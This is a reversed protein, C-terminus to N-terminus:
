LAQPEAHVTMMCPRDMMNAQYWVLYHCRMRAAVIQLLQERLVVTSLRQEVVATLSKRLARNMLAVDSKSIAPRGSLMRENWWCAEAEVHPTVSTTPGDSSEHTTSGLWMHFLAGGDARSRRKDEPSGPTTFLHQLLNTVLTFEQEESVECVDL